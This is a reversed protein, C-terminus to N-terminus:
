YNYYAYAGLLRDPYKEAVLRAVDNYFKLLLPTYSIKGHPDKETYSRCNDCECFGGGDSSSISAMHRDPHEDLWRIVGDAFARVLGPNTTCYKDRDGRVARYEPHEKLTEESVYWVWSHTDFVLRSCATNAPTSFGSVKHRTLWEQVVPTRNGVNIQRFLFAPSQTFDMEPIALREHVPIEEGVEGPMLWRVGVYKELSTYVGFQTGRSFGGEATREGDPTDKGVIYLNGGKNVIRFSEEALGEVSVGADRAAANGGLCIVPSKPVNVIPLDAGTSVKLVRQLEGAATKVSSPAAADLYISYSSRGNEALTLLAAHAAHSDAWASLVLLASFVVRKM